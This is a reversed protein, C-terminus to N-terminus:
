KKVLFVQAQKVTYKVVYAGIIISIAVDVGALGLLSVLATGLGAFSSVAQVSDIVKSIYYNIISLSIATSAVGLGAGLLMKKISGTIAYDFLKKLSALLGGKTSM